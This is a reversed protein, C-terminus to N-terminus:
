QVRERQRKRVECPLCPGPGWVMQARYKGCSICDCEGTGACHFCPREAPDLSLSTPRDAVTSVTQTPTAAELEADALAAKAIDLLRGM